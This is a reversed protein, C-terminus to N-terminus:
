LKKVNRGFNMNNKIEIIKALGEKTKHLDNNIIAQIEVVFDEFELNKTGKLEGKIMNILINIELKKTIILNVISNSEKILGLFKQPGSTQSASM